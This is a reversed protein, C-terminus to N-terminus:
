NLYKVINKTVITLMAIVYAAIGYILVLFRKGESIPTLQQKKPFTM